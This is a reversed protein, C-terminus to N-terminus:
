PSNFVAFTFGNQLNLKLTVFDKLKYQLLLTELRGLEHKYDYHVM